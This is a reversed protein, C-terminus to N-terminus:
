IETMLDAMIGHARALVHQADDDWVILQERDAVFAAFHHKQCTPLFSLSPLVQLRLNNSIHIYNQQNTRPVMTIVHNQVTV